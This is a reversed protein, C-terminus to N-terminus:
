NSGSLALLKAERVLLAEFDQSYTKAIEKSDVHARIVSVPALFITPSNRSFPYLEDQYQQLVGEFFIVSLISKVYVEQKSQLKEQKSLNTETVDYEEIDSYPLLMEIRPVAINKEVRPNIPLSTYFMLINARACLSAYVDIADPSIGRGFLSANGELRQRWKSKDTTPKTEAIYDEQLSQFRRVVRFTTYAGEDMEKLASFIYALTFSDTPCGFLDEFTMDPDIVKGEIPVFGIVWHILSSILDFYTRKVFGCYLMDGEASTVNNLITLFKRLASRVLDGHLGYDIADSFYHELPLVRGDRFHIKIAPEKEFMLEHDKHYQRLDMAAEKLRATMGRGLEFAMSGEPPILLGEQIAKAREYQALVKPEPHREITETKEYIDYRVGVSTVISIEKGETQWPLVRSLSIPQVSADSGGIRLPREIGELTIKQLVHKGFVSQRLYNSLTTRDVLPPPYRSQMKNKDLVIAVPGPGTVKGSEDRLEIPVGLTRFFVHEALDMIRELRFRHKEKEERSTAKPWLNVEEIFKKELWEAFDCYLEIPNRSLLHRAADGYIRMAKEPPLSTYRGSSEKIIDQLLQQTEEKEREEDVKDRTIAQGMGFEVLRYTNQPRGGSERTERYSIIKKEAELERLAQRITSAAIDLEDTVADIIEGTTVGNPFKTITELVKERISPRVQSGQSAVDDVM